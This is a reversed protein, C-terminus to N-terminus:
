PGQVYVSSKLINPYAECCYSLVKPSSLFNIEFIQLKQGGKPLKHMYQDGHVYGGNCIHINHDKKTM